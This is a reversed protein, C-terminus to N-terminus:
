RGRAASERWLARTCRTPRRPGACPSGRGTGAAPAGARQAPHRCARATRARRPDLWLEPSTRAARGRACFGRALGRGRKRRALGTEVGSLRFGYAGAVAVTVGRRTRIHSSEIRWGRARFCCRRASTLFTRCGSGGCCRRISWRKTSGEDRGHQPSRAAKKPSSSAISIHRATRRVVDAPLLDGALAEMTATRTGWGGRGGARALAGVFGPDLLPASGTAARRRSISCRRVPLVVDAGAPSM